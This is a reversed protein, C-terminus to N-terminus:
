QAPSPPLVEDQVGDRRLRERAAEAREAAANAREDAVDALARWAAAHHTTPREATARDSQAAQRMRHAAQEQLRIAALEAQVVSEFLVEARDRAM